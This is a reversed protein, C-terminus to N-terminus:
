LRPYRFCQTLLATTIVMDQMGKEMYVVTFSSKGVRYLSMGIWCCWFVKQKFCSFNNQNKDTGGLCTSTGLTLFHMYHIDKFYYKTYWIAFLSIFKNYFLFKFCWLIRTYWLSCKFDSCVRFTIWHITSPYWPSKLSGINSCRWGTAEM